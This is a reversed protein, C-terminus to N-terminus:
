RDPLGRQSYQELVEDELDEAHMRDDRRMGLWTQLSFPGAIWMLTGAGALVIFLLGLLM